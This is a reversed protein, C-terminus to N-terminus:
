WGIDRRSRQRRKQDNEPLEAPSTRYTNMFEEPTMGARRAALRIAQTAEELGVFPEDGNTPPTIIGSYNPSTTQSTLPTTQGRKTGVRREDPEAQVPTKKVTKKRTRTAGNNIYEVVRPAANYSKKIMNDVYHEVLNRIDQHRAEAMLEFNNRLGQQTLNSSGILMAQKQPWTKRTIWAKAHMIDETRNKAQKKTYWCLLETDPRNLFDTALDREEATGLGLRYARLDGVIVRTPRRPANRQLWALGWISVYGTLVDM